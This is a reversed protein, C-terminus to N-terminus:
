RPLFRYTILGTVKVAQGGVLTPTFRAKAAADESAKRLYAHGCTAEAQIVKGSEDIVVKVLVIGSVRAQRAEGPYDPRPLSIAKGNVIQDAILTGPIKRQLRFRKDWENATKEQGSEYLMCVYREQSKELRDDDPPLLKGEIALLRQFVADAKEYKNLLRYLEGLNLLTSAVALSEAGFAQETGALARLYLAESKDYDLKKYRLFGLSTLAKSMLATDLGPTKELIALARKYFPEASEYKRKSIYLEGLNFLASAVLKDDTGLAKERIELVRTALRIAEDDKGEKHLQVVQKNLRNAEALEASPTQAQGRMSGTSFSHPTAQSITGQFLLLAAILARLLLKM